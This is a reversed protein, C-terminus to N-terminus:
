LYSVKQKIESTASNNPTAEITWESALHNSINQIAEDNFESPQYLIIIQKGMKSYYEIINQRHIQDLRSTPTDIVIPADKTAFKNLGGIMSIAIIQSAGASPSYKHTSHETDDNKIVKMNFENDIKLSRYLDPNNTLNSFVKSIHEELAPKRTKYFQDKSEVICKIITECVDKRKQASNLQEDVISSQIKDELNSKEKELKSKQMKFDSLDQEYKGIDKLVETYKHDLDVITTEAGHENIQQTLQEITGQLKDIEQKSLAISELARELQDLKTDPNHNVLINNVFKKLISVKSITIDIIKSNFVKRIQEDIPRDCICTDHNKAIIFKITDSLWRDLSPPDDETEYIITLLPSLLILSLNGRNEMLTKEDEKISKKHRVLDLEIDDRKGVIEKITKHKKLDVVLENRRLQAGNLSVETATISDKVKSINSQLDDLQKRTKEDKTQKRLNKYYDEQFIQFVGKLDEEANRLEQIGLVKEISKQLHREEQIYRQIEEGDFFFFQSADKPLITDIWDKKNHEDDTTMFPKDNEFIDVVSDRTTIDKGKATQEFKVSRKLRYEDVKHTFKIEVYMEGNGESAKHMNVWDSASLKREFGDDGYLVFKIAQFLTTKGRDNDAKILIINRDDSVATMIEATDTFRGFNHLKISKFQM